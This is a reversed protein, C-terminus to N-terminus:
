NPYNGPSALMAMVILDGPLYTFISSSCDQVINKKIEFRKKVQRAHELIYHEEIGSM